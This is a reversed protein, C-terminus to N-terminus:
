NTKLFFARPNQERTKQKESFLNNFFREVEMCELQNVERESMVFDYRESSSIKSINEMVKDVAFFIM